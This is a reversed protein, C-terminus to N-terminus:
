LHPEPDPFATVPRQMAPGHRRARPRLLAPAHVEHVLLEGVAPHTAHERDDILPTALTGQSLYDMPNGAAVHRRGEVAHATGAGRRPRDGHAVAGLEGGHGEVGPGKLM